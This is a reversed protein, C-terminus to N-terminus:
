AALNLSRSHRLARALRRVGEDIQDIPVSSFSLRLSLTPHLDPRVLFLEGPDFAVGNELASYLFGADTGPGKPTAVPDDGCAAAFAFLSVPLTLMVLTRYNLSAM